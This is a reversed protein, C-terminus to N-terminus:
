NFVDIRKRRPFRCIIRGKHNNVIINHALALGQGTGMNVDKTTFFPDFIRTINIKPIGCGTDQITIMVKDEATKTSIRIKGKQGSNEPIVQQIAQSANVIMNLIVQNIEDIQCFVQPLDQDLSTEVDACPEWENQSIIITTLIGHNIDSYKKEKESFRTFENIALVIKRIREIGNLSEQTANPVEQKYHEIKKQEWLSNIKDIEEITYPIDKHSLIFYRYYYLVEEYRTIVRNLYNINDGVFQIPTNIEHAIGSALRGISEMKQSQISQIEVRHKQTIDKSIIVYGSANEMKANLPYIDQSIFAKTGNKNLLMPIDATGTNLLYHIASATSIDAPYDTIRLIKEVPQGIAEASSYGTLEEAGRNFSTIVGNKDTTIVSDGMSALTINFLENEEALKSQISKRQDIEQELVKNSKELQGQLKSVWYTAFIMGIILFIAPFLIRRTANTLESDITVLSFGVRFGGWHRGNVMIPSSIDWLTEGTDRKYTQWLFPQTNQVAVLGVPDSFIRKTRNGVLDTEYDGTLPKSYITNHTPIYGNIDLAVPM